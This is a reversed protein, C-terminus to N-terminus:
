DPPNSSAEILLVFILIFYFLFLFLSRVVTRPRKSVVEIPVKTSPATEPATNYSPVPESPVDEAPFVFTDEEEM